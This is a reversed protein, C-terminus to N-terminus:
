PHPLSHAVTHRYLLLQPDIAHLRRKMQTLLWNTDEEQKCRLEGTQFEWWVQLLEDKSAGDILKLLRTRTGSM